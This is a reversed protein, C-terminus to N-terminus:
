MKMQTILEDLHEESCARAFASAFKRVEGRRLRAQQAAKRAMSSMFEDLEGTNELREIEEPTATVRMMQLGIFTALTWQAVPAEEAFGLALAPTKESLQDLTQFSFRETLSSLMELLRERALELEVLHDPHALQFIKRTLNYIIQALTPSHQPLFSLDFRPTQALQPLANASERRAIALQDAYREQCALCTELHQRVEPYLQTAAQGEREADVYEPLLERCQDCAATNEPSGAILRALQGLRGRRSPADPNM